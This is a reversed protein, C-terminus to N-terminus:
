RGVREVAHHGDARAGCGGGSPPRALLGSLYTAGAGHADLRRSVGGGTAKSATAAHAAPARKIPGCRAMPQPDELHARRSRRRGALPQHATEGTRRNHPGRRVVGHGFCDGREFVPPVAARTRASGGDGGWVRHM